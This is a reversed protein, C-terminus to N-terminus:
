FLKELEEKSNFYKIRKDSFRVALRCNINAFAFVESSDPHKEEILKRAADLLNLRQKTLDLSISTFCKQEGTGLKLPKKVTPRARFFACRANWSRWKVIIPKTITGNDLTKEKGIRHCRFIDDRNVDVGIQKAVQEVVKVVDDDSENAATKVGHIRLCSRRGYQELEEVQPDTKAVRGELSDIRAQLSAITSSKLKVTSDLLAIQAAQNQVTKELLALKRAVDGLDPVDGGAESGVDDSVSSTSSNPTNPKNRKTSPM